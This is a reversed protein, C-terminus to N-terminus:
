EGLKERLKRIEAELEHNRAEVEAAQKELEVAHQELKVARQESEGSRKEAAEAATLLVNKSTADRLILHLKDLKFDIDLTECRLHGSIDPEIARFGSATKRHGQLAPDLYDATPDFVFYEQVGIDCYVKPKRTEDQWRSSKSTVEIIVQPPSPEEWIKYVRRMHPGCNPVVFVDPVFFDRPVGENYYVLMDAGVYTQTGKYRTKLIDRLRFIWDIHLETEGVPRGDSEPYIVESKNNAISM